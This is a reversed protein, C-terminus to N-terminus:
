ATLHLTDAAFLDAVEVPRDIIRQTVAHRVLEELVGRNAEIGYPLPDGTIEMVRRHLDDVPTPAAIRGERLRQLYLRKAEAFAHFVAAAVDPHADLIDDKIVVLHNIPYHGRRRLADLGADMANPILPAVDPHDLPLKLETLRLMGRM